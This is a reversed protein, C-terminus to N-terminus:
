RLPQVPRPTQASAPAVKGPLRQAGVGGAPAVPSLATGPKVSRGSQSTGAVFNDIQATERLRDFEKTMLQRLKKEHIEKYLLDRVAAFDDQV